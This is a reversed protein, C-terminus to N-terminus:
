YLDLINFYAIKKQEVMWQNLDRPKIKHHQNKFNEFGELGQGPNEILGAETISRALDMVDKTTDRLCHDGSKAHKGCTKLLGDKISSVVQTTKCATQATAFSKNPGQRSLNQKINKVQMEVFNDNPICKGSGGHTNVVQNWRYEMAARQPLIAMDYALLRWMWLRYKIHSSPFQYLFEFKANRMLRDGDGYAYAHHTDHQLFLLKILSPIVPDPEDTPPTVADAPLEAHHVDKLHKRLRKTFVYKKLCQTCHYKGDEGKRGQLWEEEATIKVIDEAINQSDNLTLHERIARAHQYLWNVKGEPTYVTLAKPPINTTPQSTVDQIGFHHLASAVIFAELVDNLFQQHPRFISNYIIKGVSKLYLIQM